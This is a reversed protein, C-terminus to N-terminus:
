RIVVFYASILSTNIDYLLVLLQPLPCHPVWKCGSKQIAGWNEMIRPAARFQMEDATMEKLRAKIHEVAGVVPENLDWLRFLVPM